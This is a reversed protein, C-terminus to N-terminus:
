TTHPQGTVMGNNHIYKHISVGIATMVLVVRTLITVTYKCACACLADKGSQAFTMLTLFSANAAMKEM